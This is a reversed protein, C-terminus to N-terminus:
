VTNLAVDAGPISPSVQPNAKSPVVIDLKENWFGVLLFPYHPTALKRVRRLPPERVARWCPGEGYRSPKDDGGHVNGGSWSPYPCGEHAGEHEPISDRGSHAPVLGAGVDHDLQALHLPVAQRGRTGCEGHPVGPLALGVGVDRLQMRGNSRRRLNHSGSTAM